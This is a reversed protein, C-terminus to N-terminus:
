GFALVRDMCLSRNIAGRAVSRSKSAAILKDSAAEDTKLKTEPKSGLWPGSSAMQWSTQGATYKKKRCWCSTLLSRSSSVKALTFLPLCWENKIERKLAQISSFLM